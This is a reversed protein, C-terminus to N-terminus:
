FSNVHMANGSDNDSNYQEGCVVSYIRDAAPEPEDIAM